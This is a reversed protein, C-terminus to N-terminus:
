ARAAVHNLHAPPSSRNGKVHAGAAICREWHWQDRNAAVAIRRWTRHTRRRGKRERDDSSAYGVCRRQVLVMNGRPVDKRLDHDQERWGLRLGDAGPHKGMRENGPRLSAWM